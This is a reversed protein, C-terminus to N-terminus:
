NVKFLIMITNLYYNNWRAVNDVFFDDTCVTNM